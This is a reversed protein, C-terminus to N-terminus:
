AEICHRKRSYPGKSLVIASVETLLDEGIVDLDLFSIWEWYKDLMM